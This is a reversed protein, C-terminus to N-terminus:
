DRRVNSCGVFIFEKEDLLQVNVEIKRERALAQIQSSIDQGNPRVFLHLRHMDPDLANVQNALAVGQAEPIPSLVYRGMLAYTFDISQGNWEVTTKAAQKLFDTDDNGYINRLEETKADCAAQMEALSIPFLQNQRCEWYVPEKQPPMERPVALLVGVSGVQVRELGSTPEPQSATAPTVADSRALPIGEPSLAQLVDVPEFGVDIGHARIQRRLQRQFVATGPRLLLVISRADRQAEFQTLYREFEGDPAAIGAADIETKEPHIVIRDPRIEVYVPDQRCVFPAQAGALTVVTDCPLDTRTESVTRPPLAGHFDMTTRSAAEFHTEPLQVMVDIGREKLQQRLRRQFIAGGPHPILIFYHTERMEEMRGFLSAFDKEPDGTAVLGSIEPAIAIRDEWVEVYVPSQNSLIFPHVSVTEAKALWADARAPLDQQAFALSPLLLIWLLKKM